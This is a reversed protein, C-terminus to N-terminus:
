TPASNMDAPPVREYVDLGFGNMMHSQAVLYAVAGNTLVRAAHREGFEFTYMFHPMGSMEMFESLKLVGADDWIAYGAMSDKAVFQTMTAAASIGMPQLSATWDYGSGNNTGRKVMLAEGGNTVETWSLFVTDKVTTATNTVIELKQQAIAPNTAPEYHVM